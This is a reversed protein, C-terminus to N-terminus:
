RYDLHIIGSQFSAFIMKSKKEVVRSSLCEATSLKKNAAQREEKGSERNKETDITFLRALEV